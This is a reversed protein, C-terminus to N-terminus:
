VHARGIETLISHVFSYTPDISVANRNDPRDNYSITVKRKHLKADRVSAKGQNGEGDYMLTIWCRGSDCRERLRVRIPGTAVVESELADM